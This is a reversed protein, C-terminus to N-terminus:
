NNEIKIFSDPPCILTFPDYNEYQIQLYYSETKYEEDKRYIRGIIKCPLGTYQALWEDDIYTPKIYDGIKVEDM